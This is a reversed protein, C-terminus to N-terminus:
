LYVVICGTFRYTGVLATFGGWRLMVQFAECSLVSPRGPKPLLSRKTRSLEQLGYPDHPILTQIGCSIKCDNDFM